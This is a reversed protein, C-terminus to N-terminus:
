RRRTADVARLRIRTLCLRGCPEISRAHLRRTVLSAGNARNLLPCSSRSRTAATTSRESFVRPALLRTVDSPAHSAIPTTTRRALGSVAHLRRRRRSALLLWSARRRSRVTTACSRARRTRTTPRRSNNVHQPPRRGARRASKRWASNNPPSRRSSERRNSRQQIHATMAGQGGRTRDDPEPRVVRSTVRGCSTDHVELRHVAVLEKLSPRTLAPSPPRARLGDRVRHLEDRHLARECSM